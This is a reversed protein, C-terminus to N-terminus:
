VNIIDSDDSFSKKWFGCIKGELTYKFLDFIFPFVYFHAFISQISYTELHNLHMERKRGMLGRVCM